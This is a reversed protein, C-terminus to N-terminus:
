APRGSGRRRSKRTTDVSARKAARSLDGSLAENQLEDIVSIDESLADMMAMPASARAAFLIGRAEDLHRAAGGVDGQSMRETAARKARQTRQFALETRVVPDPIRGAAQDGPLVNVHVPVTISHHVLTPLEVWTFDLRAMQALGLAGIGPVDFTVVLRRAEGSYFSGLEILVGDPTDVVSMDNIVMIRRCVPTMRILVSAAQVAQALLGDLEQSIAVMAEDADEGFLESGNGGAAIASLLTEDCGLGFGLTSTVIGASSAESAVGGLRAPDTVGANAKGDSILLVTGGAGADVGDVARRAEQLGRLYGASLNTMGGPEIGSIRNKAKAKDILPAAAIEVRVHDDFTVLGFRDAPDLRDVLDLLAKKAGDLREGAMSGSRDLVVVLTRSAARQGSDAIPATMEVLLSVHDDSELAIVDVDLQTSIHM